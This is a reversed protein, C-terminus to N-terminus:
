RSGATDYRRCASDNPVCIKALLNFGEVVVGALNAIDPQLSRAAGVSLRGVNAGNSTRVIAGVGRIVDQAEAWIMM